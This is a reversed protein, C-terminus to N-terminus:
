RSVVSEFVGAVSVFLFTSLTPRYTEKLSLLVESKREVQSNNKVFFQLLIVNVMSSVKHKTWTCCMLTDPTSEGTVLLICLCLQCYQEECPPRSGRLQLTRSAVRETAGSAWNSPSTAVTGSVPWLSSTAPKGRARKTDDKANRIFIIYFLNLKVSRRKNIFKDWNNQVTSLCYKINEIEHLFQFFEKTKM